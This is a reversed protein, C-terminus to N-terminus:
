LKIIKNYAIMGNIFATTEYTTHTKRYDAIIKTIDDTEPVKLFKKSKMKIIKAEKTKM